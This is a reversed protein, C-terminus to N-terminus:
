LNRCVAPVYRFDLAGGASTVRCTWNIHGDPPTGLALPNGGADEPDLQLAVNLAETSYGIDIEGNAGIVMTDVISTPNFIFGLDFAGANSANETVLTKAASALSLGETVKSRIIYDQYQPVAIAALIGIIAVVIMLEILTFGSNSRKM